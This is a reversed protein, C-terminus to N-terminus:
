PLVPRGTWSRCLRHDQMQERRGLIRDAILLRRTKLDRSSECLADVLNILRRAQNKHKLYMYPTEDIIITEFNSALTIYDATGLAEECLDAFTFRAVKDVAWPVKVKRGYVNVSTKSGLKLGWDRILIRKLSVGAENRSSVRGAERLLRLLRSSLGGRRMVGDLGLGGRVRRRLLRRRM